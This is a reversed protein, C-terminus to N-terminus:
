TATMPSLTTTSSVSPQAPPADPVPDPVPVPTTRPGPSASPDPGTGPVPSAGAKRVFTVRPVTAVREVDGLMWRVEDTHEADVVVRFRPDDLSLYTVLEALGQDLPQAAVVESLSVQTEHRLADRVGAALLVGSARDLLRASVPDPTM